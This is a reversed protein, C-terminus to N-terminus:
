RFRDFLSKSTSRAVKAVDSMELRVDELDEIDVETGDFQPLSECSLQIDSVEVNIADVEVLDFGRNAISSVLPVSQRSTELADLTLVAENWDVDDWDCDGLDSMWAHIPHLAFSLCGMM